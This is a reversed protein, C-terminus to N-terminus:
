AVSRLRLFLLCHPLFIDLSHSKYSLCALVVYAYHSNVAMALLRHHTYSLHLHKDFSTLRYYNLALLAEATKLHLM